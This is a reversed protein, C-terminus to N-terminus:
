EYRIKRGLPRTMAFGVAAFEDSKPTKHRHANM